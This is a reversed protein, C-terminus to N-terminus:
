RCSHTRHDRAPIMRACSTSACRHAGHSDSRSVGPRSGGADDGRDEGTQHSPTLFGVTRDTSSGAPRGGRRATGSASTRDWWRSRVAGARRGVQDHVRHAVRGPSRPTHPIEPLVHVGRAFRAHPPIARHSDPADLALPDGDAVGVVSSSTSASSSPWNSSFGLMGSCPVSCPASTSTMWLTRAHRTFPRARRGDFVFARRATQMRSFAHFLTQVETAEIARSRAGNCTVLGPARPSCVLDMRATVAPSSPGYPPSSLGSRPRCRRVVNLADLTRAM